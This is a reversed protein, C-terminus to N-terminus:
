RIAPIGADYLFDPDLFVIAVDSKLGSTSIVCNRVHANFFIVTDTMISEPAPCIGREVSRIELLLNIETFNERPDSGYFVGCGFKQPTGSGKVGVDDAGISCLGDTM